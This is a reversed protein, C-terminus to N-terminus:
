ICPVGFRRRGGITFLAQPEVYVFGVVSELFIPMQRTKRSYFEIRLMRVLRFIVRITM